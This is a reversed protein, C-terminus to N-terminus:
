TGFAQRRCARSSEGKPCTILGAPVTTEYTTGAVEYTIRIGTRAGLDQGRIRYGLL